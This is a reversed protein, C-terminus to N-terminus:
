WQEDDPRVFADIRGRPTRIAGKATPDRGSRESASSSGQPLGGTWQHPSAPMVLEFRAPAPLPDAVRISTFPRGYPNFVPQDPQPERVIAVMMLCAAALAAAPIWGNFRQERVPSLRSALSPWVSACAATEEPEPRAQLVGLTEELEQRHMRCAPCGALHQRVDGEAAEELDSGVSLAIALRARKCNTM